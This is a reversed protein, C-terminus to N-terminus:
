SKRVQQNNTDAVYVGDLWALGGPENFSAEASLATRLNTRATERWPRVTRTSPDIVKIKSNYNDAM